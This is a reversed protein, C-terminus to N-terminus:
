AAQTSENMVARRAAGTVESQGQGCSAHRSSCCRAELHRTRWDGHGGWGRDERAVVEASVHLDSSSASRAITVKVATATGLRDGAAIQGVDRDGSELNRVGDERTYDRIIRRLGRGFFAVRVSRSARRRVTKAPCWHTKAISCAQRGRSRPLDIVELRDRIAPPLQLFFCAGYGARIQRDRYVAGRSIRVAV